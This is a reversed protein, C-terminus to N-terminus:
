VYLGISMDSVIFYVEGPVAVYDLDRQCYQLLDLHELLVGVLAVDGRDQGFIARILGFSESRSLFKIEAYVEEM